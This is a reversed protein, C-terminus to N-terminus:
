PTSLSKKDHNIPVQRMRKALAKPTDAQGSSSANKDHRGPIYYIDDKNAPRIQDYWGFDPLFDKSPPIQTMPYLVGESKSTWIKELQREHNLFMRMTDTEMYVMGILTSDRDEVPYYVTQVNGIAESMSLNGEEFYANMLKSAVQNYYVKEPHEYDHRMEISLANAMVHAERVTSDAMFVKISDGLLQRSANWVIPDFYMTLTSDQSCLVLSDCVAQVDRRFLRVKRYCHVKRYTSDTNINFTEVRITDAHMFLTDKQSFDIFVPNKTAMGKGTSENYDVADAVLRNKNKHDVYDVRGYGRSSKKDSDYFLSDGSITRTDTVISSKDFLEVKDTKMHFICNTTEVDYGDKISHIVSKKWKPPGGDSAMKTMGGKVHAKESQSYYLLTDTNIVHTKTKLTVDYFFEAEKTDLNYKGWDSSLTMGKAKDAYNGGQDYYVIDFKQDYVLNDTHLESTKRHYVVVNNQAHVMEANGDYLATDCHIELTDGQLMRVHGYAEFKNEQQKFYASDCFLTSGKHRFKVHGRVVQKDGLRFRDYYLSDAHDLYIRNDAPRANRKQASVNQAMGLAFLCLVLALLTGHWCDHRPLLMSPMM